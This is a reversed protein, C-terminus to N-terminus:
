RRDALRMSTTRLPRIPIAHTVAGTVPDNVQLYGTYSYVGNADVAPTWLSTQEETAFFLEAGSAAFGYLGGYTGADTYHRQYRHDARPLEGV